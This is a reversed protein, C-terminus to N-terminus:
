SKGRERYASKMNSKTWLCNAMTGNRCSVNGDIIRQYGEILKLKSTYIGCISKKGFCQWSGLVYVEKEQETEM